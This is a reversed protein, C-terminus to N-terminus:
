QESAEDKVLPTRCLPCRSSADNLAKDLCVKCFLHGCETFAYNIGFVMPVMPEFCISCDEESGQARLRTLCAQASASFDPSVATLVHPRVIGDQYNIVLVNQQPLISYQNPTLSNRVHIGNIIHGRNMQTNGYIWANGSVRANGFVRAIGYVWANEAIRANGSVRANEFVRATGTIWADGTIRAAGYVWANGTVRANRTIHANGAVHANGDIRATGAVHATGYVWADGTVRAYGTVRADGFIRANRSVRANGMVQANRTIRADGTVRAHDCISAELGIYPKNRAQIWGIQIITATDAVFGGQEGNLNITCRGPAGNCPPVERNQLCWDDAAYTSTIFLISFLRIFIFLHLIM